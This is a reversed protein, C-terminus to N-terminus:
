TGRLAVPEALGDLERRRGGEHQVQPPPRVEDDIRAPPPKRPARLPIRASSASANRGRHKPDRLTLDRQVERQASTGGAKRNGLNGPVSSPEAGIALPSDWEVRPARPPGIRRRLAKRPATQASTGQANRTLSSPKTSVNLSRRRSDM